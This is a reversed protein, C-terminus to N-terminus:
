LLGLRNAQQRLSVNVRFTGPAAPNVLFADKKRPQWPHALRMFAPLTNGNRWLFNSFIKGQDGGRSAGRSGRGPSPHGPPVLQAPDPLRRCFVYCFLM